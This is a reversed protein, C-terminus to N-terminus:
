SLPAGQKEYDSLINVWLRAHLGTAKEIDESWCPSPLIHALLFDQMEGHKWGVLEALELSSKGKNMNQLHYAPHKM